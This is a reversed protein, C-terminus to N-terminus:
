KNMGRPLPGDVEYDSADFQKKVDNAYDKYFSGTKIHITCIDTDM